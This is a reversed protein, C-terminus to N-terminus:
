QTHKQNLLDSDSQGAGSGGGLSGPMQAGGEAALAAAAVPAGLGPSAAGQCCWVCRRVGRYPCGCPGCVGRDITIGTRGREGALRMAGAILALSMELQESNEDPDEGVVSGAPGALSPLLMWFDRGRPLMLPPTSM